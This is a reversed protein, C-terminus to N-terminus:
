KRLHFEGSKKSGDNILRSKKIVCDYKQIKGDRFTFTVSLEGFRINESQIDQMLQLMLEESM